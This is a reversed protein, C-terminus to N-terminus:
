LESKQRQLSYLAVAYLSHINSYFRRSFMFKEIMLTEPNPFYCKARSQVVHAPFQQHLTSNTVLSDHTKHESISKHSVIQKNFLIQTFIASPVFADLALLHIARSEKSLALIQWSTVKLLFAFGSQMVATRVLSTQSRIPM